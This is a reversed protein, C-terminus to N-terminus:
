QAEHWFAAYCSPSLKKRRVAGTSGPCNNKKGEWVLKQASSIAIGPV